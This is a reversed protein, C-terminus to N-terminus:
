FLDTIKFQRDRFCFYEGVKKGSMAQYLPTQASIAFVTEGEFVLQGLSICIFYKQVETVVVTGFEVEHPERNLDVRKLLALASVAEEFQRAYMDRDQQMQERFSEFKEEMGGQAENASEQADLMAKRANEVVKSQLKLCEELLAKKDFSRKTM